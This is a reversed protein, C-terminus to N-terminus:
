RNEKIRDVTSFLGNVPIHHLDVSSNTESCKPLDVLASNSSHNNILMNQPFGNLLQLLSPLVGRLDRGLGLMFKM